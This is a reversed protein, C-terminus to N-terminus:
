YLWEDIVREIWGGILNFATFAPDLFAKM